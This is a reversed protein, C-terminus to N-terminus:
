LYSPAESEPEFMGGVVESMGQYALDSIARGKEAFGPELDSIQIVLMQLQQILNQFQERRQNSLDNAPSSYFSNINSDPPTVPAPSTAAGGFLPSTANQPSDLVPM